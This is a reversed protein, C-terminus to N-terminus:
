NINSNEGYDSGNVDNSLAAASVTHWASLGPEPVKQGESSMFWHAPHLAAEPGISQPLSGVEVDRLCDRRRCTFLAEGTCKTITWICNFVAWMSEFDITSVPTTDAHSSLMTYLLCLFVELWLGSVPEEMHTVNLLKVRKILTLSTLATITQVM